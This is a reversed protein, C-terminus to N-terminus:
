SQRDPAALGPVGEGVLGGDWWGLTRNFIQVREQAAALGILMLWLLQM